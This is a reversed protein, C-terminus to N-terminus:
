TQRRNDVATDESLGESESTADNEENSILYDDFNM